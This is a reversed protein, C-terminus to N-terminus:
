PRVGTQPQYPPPQPPYVPAQYVVMPHHYGMPPGYGPGRVLLTEPHGEGGPHVDVVLATVPPAGGYGGTVRGYIASQNGSKLIAQEESSLGASEMASDPDKVFRGLEAPDTALKVLYRRLPHEEGGPTVPPM